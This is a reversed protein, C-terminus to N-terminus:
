GDPHLETGVLGELSLQVELPAEKQGARGGSRDPEPLESCVCLGQPPLVHQSVQLLTIQIKCVPADITLLEVALRLQKVCYM